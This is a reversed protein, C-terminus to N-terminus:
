LPWLLPYMQKKLTRDNVKGHLSVLNLRSLVFMSPAIVCKMIDRKLLSVMYSAVEEAKGEAEAYM